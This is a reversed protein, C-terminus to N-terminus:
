NLAVGRRIYTPVDLDEGQHITPESKEFRGRSVIDLQLQGQRMKALQRKRRSESGAQGKILQEKRQETSEPAPPIFRSAPRASPEEPNMFEPSRPAAASPQESVESSPSESNRPTERLASEVVTARSAILTMAVRNAYAPDIAAGLILHANECHRNIQEMVRHVEAMTLDPGAVVSVLVADTETLMQGGELLPHALLQDILRQARNEGSAEVSAFFSQSHRGRTVSCLDAFDVNILGTQSMLRWIGRVGEAILENSIKFTEVVNTNEDILKLLKQNPLCIVADAAEKLQRLGLQAQRQRRGGEFDFPLTVLALVLAGTERAIRALVPASGTGTGGGLGAVIFVIDQGICLARLRESDEEAAARGIEPDGGTGLGRTLKHGLAFREASEVKELARFDTNLAAFEVGPYQQAAMHGVANGGAGGLGFVKIAISRAAGPNQNM